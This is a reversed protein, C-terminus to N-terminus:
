IYFFSYSNYITFNNIYWQLSLCFINLDYVFIVYVICFARASLLKYVQWHEIEIGCPEIVFWM